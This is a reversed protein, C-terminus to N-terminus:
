FQAIAWRIKTEERWLALDPLSQDNETRKFVILGEISSYWDLHATLCIHVFFTWLLRLMKPKPLTFTPTTWKQDIMNTWNKETKALFTLKMLVVIFFMLNQYHLALFTLTWLTANESIKQKPLGDSLRFIFLTYKSIQWVFFCRYNKHVEVLNLEYFKIRSLTHSVCNSPKQLASSRSQNPFCFNRPLFTFSSTKKLTRPSNEHRQSGKM